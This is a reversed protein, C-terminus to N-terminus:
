TRVGYRSFAIDTSIGILSLAGPIVEIVQVSLEQHLFGTIPDKLATQDARRFLVTGGEGVPLPVHDKAPQNV